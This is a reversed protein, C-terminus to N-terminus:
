KLVSCKEDGVEGKLYYDLLKAPVEKNLSVPEWERTKPNWSWHSELVKKDKQAYLLLYWGGYLKSYCTKIHKVNPVEKAFRLAAENIEARAVPDVAGESVAKAEASGPPKYFPPPPPLEADVAKDGPKPLEKAAGTEARASKAQSGKSGPDRKAATLGAVCGYVLAVVCVLSALIFHNKM